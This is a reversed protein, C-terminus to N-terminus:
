ISQNYYKQPYIQLGRETGKLFRELIVDAYNGFFIVRKGEDNNDDFVLAGVNGLISVYYKFSVPSARHRVIGCNMKM